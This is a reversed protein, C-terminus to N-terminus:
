LNPRAVQRMQLMQEVFFDFCLIAYDSGLRRDNERRGLVLNCTKGCSLEPTTPLSSVTRFHPVPPRERHVGRSKQASAVQSNGSCGRLGGVIPM